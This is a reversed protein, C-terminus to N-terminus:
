LFYLRKKAYFISNLIESSWIWIKLLVMKLQLVKRYKRIDIQTSIQTTLMQLYFPLLIVLSKGLTLYRITHELNGLLEHSWKKGISFMGNIM